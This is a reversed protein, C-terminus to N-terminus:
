LILALTVNIQYFQLETARVLEVRARVRVLLIREYFTSWAFVWSNASPVGRQVPINQSPLCVPLTHSCTSSHWPWPGYCMVPLASLTSSHKWFSVSEFDMLPCPEGLTWASLTSMFENWPQLHALAHGLAGMIGQVVWFSKRSELDWHFYM